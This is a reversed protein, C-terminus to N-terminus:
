PRPGLPEERDSRHGLRHRIEELVEIIMDLPVTRSSFTRALGAAQWVSGPPTSGAMQGIVIVEERGLGMLQADLAKAYPLDEVCVSSVVIVHVDDEIAERAVAQPEDLPPGIDVDFGLDAFAAGIVRESGDGAQRGMKAVLLRPRRGEDVEFQEVLARVRVALEREKNPEAESM